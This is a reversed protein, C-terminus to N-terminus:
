RNGNYWPVTKLEPIGNVLPGGTIAVTHNSRDTVGYFRGYRGCPDLFHFISLAFRVGSISVTGQVGWTFDTLLGGKFLMKQHHIVINRILKQREVNGCICKSKTQDCYTWSTKDM